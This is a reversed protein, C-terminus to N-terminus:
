LSGNLLSWKRSEMPARNGVVQARKM